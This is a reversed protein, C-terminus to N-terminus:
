YTSTLLHGVLVVHGVTAGMGLLQHVTGLVDATRGCSGTDMMTEM